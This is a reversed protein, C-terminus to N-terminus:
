LADPTLLRESPIGWRGVGWPLDLVEHSSSFVQLLLDLHARPPGMPTLSHPNQPARGTATQEGGWGM